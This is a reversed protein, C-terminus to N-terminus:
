RWTARRRRHRGPDPPPGDVLDRVSGIRPVNETIGMVQVDDQTTRGWKANRRTALMGAWRPAPRAPPACRTAPGAADIDKRKNMEIFQQFSTIIDPLKQVSFSKTGLELM